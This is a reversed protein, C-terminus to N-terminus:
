YGIGERKSVYRGLQRIIEMTLTQAQGNTLCPTALGVEERQKDLIRQTGLKRISRREMLEIM